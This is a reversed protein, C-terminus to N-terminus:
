TNFELLRFAPDPSHVLRFGLDQAVRNPSLIGKRWLPRGLADDTLFSGGRVIGYPFSLESSTTWERVGGVLDQIGYSSRDINMMGVLPPLHHNWTEPGAVYRPDWIEGWPYTRSDMGRAAKEWEDETPLRVTKGLKQSYWQCYVSADELSIGIM